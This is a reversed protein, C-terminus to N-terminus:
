VRKSDLYSIYQNLSYKYNAIEPKKLPLSSGKLIKEEDPIKRSFSRLLRSCRDFNFENDVSSEVSSNILEYDIRKLRSIIDSAVKKSKGNSLLWNNFEVTNM